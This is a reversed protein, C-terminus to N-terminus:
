KKFLNVFDLGQPFIITNNEKNNKREYIVTFQFLSKKKIKMKIRLRKKPM